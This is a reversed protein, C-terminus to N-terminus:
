RCRIGQKILENRIQERKDGQIEVIGQNEVIKYTGGSGCKRKLVQSLGKLFEENAPLREIVTVEKGGRHKKELRILADIKTNEAPGSKKSCECSAALKKCEPCKKNLQPDTSYVLESDDEM